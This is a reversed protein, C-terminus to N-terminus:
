FVNFKFRKTRQSGHLRAAANLLTRAVRDQTACLRFGPSPHALYEGCGQASKVGSRAFGGTAFFVLFHREFQSQRGNRIVRRAGAFHSITIGIVADGWMRFMGKNPDEPSIPAPM